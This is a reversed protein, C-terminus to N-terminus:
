GDNREKNDSKLIALGKIDNLAEEKDKSKEIILVVMEMFVKLYKKQCSM